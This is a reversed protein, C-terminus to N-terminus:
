RGTTAIRDGISIAARLVTDAGEGEYARSVIATAALRGCIDHAPQVPAVDEPAISGGSFFVACALLKEPSGVEEASADAWLSRRKGETPDKLWREVEGFMAVRMVDRIPKGEVSKMAEVAWRIAEQRPLAIGLFEVARDLAGEAVLKDFYNKPDVGVAGNKEGPNTNLFALIQSAETWPVRAWITM